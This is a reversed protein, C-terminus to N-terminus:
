RPISTQDAMKGDVTDGMIDKLAQEIAIVHAGGFAVFVRDHTKLAFQIKTLLVSDRVEKSARAVETFKGADSLFDFKRFDATKIDFEEGVNQKYLSTFYSFSQQSADLPFGNPLLYSRVFNGYAAVIPKDADFGYRYPNCFREMVYYLFLTEKPHRNLMLNFEENEPFDGNMLKIQHQDCLFKLLGIEAKNQIAQDRHEYHLTDPIEGGENFVVQPQLNNFYTEILKFEIADPDSSHPCGVVILRKENNKLNVVYPGGQHRIVKAVSLYDMTRYTPPYDHSTQEMSKPQM